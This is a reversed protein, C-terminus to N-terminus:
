LITNFISSIHGHWLFGHLFVQLVQHKPKKFIKTAPLVSMWAQGLFKCLYNQWLVRLGQVYVHWIGLCLFSETRYPILKPVCQFLKMTSNYLSIDMLLGKYGRTEGVLSKAKVKALVHALGNRSQPDHSMMEIPYLHNVGSRYEALYETLNRDATEGPIFKPPVNTINQKLVFSDPYYLIDDNAM